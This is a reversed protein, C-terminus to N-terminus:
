RTHRAALLAAEREPTLGVPPRPPGAGTANIDTSGAWAATDALTQALPRCRLGNALAREINMRHLGAQAQPLWLPLESWPAVGQALLFADDVWTLRASTGLTAGLTACMAALLAGMTLPTNPGCLNFAGSRRAEAQDLMWAAADRADIFQM